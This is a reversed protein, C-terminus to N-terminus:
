TTNLRVARVLGIAYEHVSKITQNLWMMAGPHASFAVAMMSVVLRALVSGPNNSGVQTIVVAVSIVVFLVVVISSFKSTSRAFELIYPAAIFTVFAGYRYLNTGWASGPIALVSCILALALLDESRLKRRFVKALLISAGVLAALGSFRIVLNSMNWLWVASDRASLNTSVWSIEGLMTCLGNSRELYPVAWCPIKSGCHQGTGSSYCPFLITQESQMGRGGIIELSGIDLVFPALPRGFHIYNRAYWSLGILLIPVLFVIVLRHRGSVFLLGILYAILMGQAILATYKSGLTLGALGGILIIDHTNLSTKKLKIIGFQLALCAAVLVDLSQSGIQTLIVPSLYISWYVLREKWSPIIGVFSTALILFTCLFVYTVLSTLGNYLATDHSIYANSVLSGMLIEGNAPFQLYDHTTTVIGFLSTGYRRALEILPIHYAISDGDWPAHLFASVQYTSLLALPGLALSARSSVFQTLVLRSGLPKWKVLWSVANFCCLALLQGVSGLAHSVLLVFAFAVPMALWTERRGLFFRLVHYVSGLAVIINLQLLIDPM